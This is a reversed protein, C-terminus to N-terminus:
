GEEEAPTMELEATEEATFGAEAMDERWQAWTVEEVTESTSDFYVPTSARHAKHAHHHHRHHRSHADAVAPTLALASVALLAALKRIM